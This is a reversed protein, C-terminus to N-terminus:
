ISGEPCYFGEPCAECDNWSEGGREPLHTGAPCEEPQMTMNYPCYHGPPCLFNEFDDIARENCFSGIPCEM